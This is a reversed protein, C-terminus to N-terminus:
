ACSSLQQSLVVGPLRSSEATSSIPLLRLASDAPESMGSSIEGSHICNRKRCHLVSWIPRRRSLQARLRHLRWGARGRLAMAVRHRDLVKLHAVRAVRSRRVSAVLGSNSCTSPLDSAQKPCSMPHGATIDLLVPQHSPAVLIRANLMRFSFRFVYSNWFGTTSLLVILFFSVTM